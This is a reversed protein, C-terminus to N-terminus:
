PNVKIPDKPAKIEKHPTLQKMLVEVAKELQPDKGAIVEKPTMEVEIDPTIGENEVVWNGEKSFIGLRPATMTGGDMLVPYNYIGVLIGLTRKGVLTGVKKLKFMYPMLDGGSAAYENTIMAKPGDIVAEPTKMIEGDRNKWYNTVTRSLLDIVYDAASGGGNFRDDVIVADKELQSFYYRNFFTYGDGGTNPMYVYAVRGGSLQDVKKRNGEVWDMLRLNAESGVPVVIMEKAGKVAAETNVSIRTQKGATNQFLSYLNTKTDLAVGNVAVLYEGEKVATGPQTLPARFSPNWSLGSYIKKFRYMGNNVEYDAGLLGVNVIIPDPYDGNGVYNHGIVLESMMDHFLYNLDDRHGVYPLFKEYKAKIAKWNAGHMNEVYFFDREIRWLEDFMQKWEKEPDVWVKMDGTNLRGDGMTIKGGTGAIGFSGGAAYLIKKGDASIVYNNVGSLVVENKRKTIDYSNLVAANAGPEVSLYFLKGETMGSLSNNNKSPLPLAVIRQEIGEMDIVVPKGGADPKPKDAAPKATDKAVPLADAKIPEEDSEPANISSASKSLVIAYINNVVPVEYSSMDLWGVNRGYNTSATFFIYKGDRSFTPNAAESRGDTIQSIKNTAINFLHIARLNNKLKKNYVIWKSDPSWGADFSADPRDYTDEDIKVPKKETVDVYYLKLHKDSYLIKKNDPSWSPNYYFNEDDLKITISPQEGKQDKLKLQYEGSEDSFYAIYKGDPSWAPNRDNAAPSITINRIDGKELPVTFIEGRGEFVARVGTASINYNRIAAEANEYHGRRTPIDDTITVPIQKSQGNAPNLLFIKGAQEYALEKGDSTLTKVAYDTYSTLKDIKKSAPDYKFVNTNKNDRDSLFYITNGVWVPRTNNSNAAAIEEVENNSVDFIWVKPMNGGRYLKFPRYQGSKESPDPNKIYAIYKGDPSFSGQHAEPLSLMSEVGTVADVEFLRLYRGSFSAKSSAFVIKNGNWGRVIEQSPHYTLRKPIGGSVPVVYVDVNGDYNGSFAIWKGDPSFAPEFEVDKNVTLRQPHSGDKNAVWIDSAYAFAIKDNSASPARLLLTEQSRAPQLLGAAAILLFVIKRM